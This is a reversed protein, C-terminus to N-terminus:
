EDGNKVSDHYEVGEWITCFDQFLQRDDDGIAFPMHDIRDHFDEVAVRMGKLLHFWATRVDKRSRPKVRIYKLVIARLQGKIERETGGKEQIAEINEVIEEQIGEALAALKAATDLTIMGSDFLRQMAVHMRAVALYRAANRGCMGIAKGVRERAEVEEGPRLDGPERGMEAEMQALAIKARTLRSIHRRNLTADLYAQIITARDAHALDLRVRVPVRKRSLRRLIRLRRHGDIITNEAFGADNQGLIEVASKLGNCRIDEALREDDELSERKFLRDQLPFDVFEDVDRDEFRWRPQKRPKAKM